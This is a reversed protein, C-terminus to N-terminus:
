LLVKILPYIAKLEEKCVQFDLSQEETTPRAALRDLEALASVVKYRIEKAFYKVAKDKMAEGKIPAPPLIQYRCKVDAM